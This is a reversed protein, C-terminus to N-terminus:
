FGLFIFSPCTCELRALHWFNLPFSVKQAKGKKQSYTLLAKALKAAATSPLNLREVVINARELASEMGSDNDELQRIKVLVPRGDNNKVKAKMFSAGRNDVISKYKEILSKAIAEEVLEKAGAAGTKSLKVAEISLKDLNAINEPHDLVLDCTEVLEDFKPIRHPVVLDLSVKESVHVSIKDMPSSPEEVISKKEVKKGTDESFDPVDFDAANIDVGAKGTAESLLSRPTHGRLDPTSGKAGSQKVLHDYLVEIGQKAVFHLATEGTEASRADGKAGAKVLRKILDIIPPNKPDGARGLTRCASMLPTFPGPRGCDVDAGADLLARVLKTAGKECALSLPSAGTVEWEALQPMEKSATGGELGGIGNVVVRFNRTDLKKAQGLVKAFTSESGIACAERLTNIFNVEKDEVIPSELAYKVALPAKNEIALSASTEQDGNPKNSDGGYRRMLLILAPSGYYRTGRLSACAVSVHMPTSLPGCLSLKGLTASHDKELKDYEDASIMERPRIVTRVCPHNPDAGADLLYKVVFRYRESVNKVGHHLRSNSGLLAGHLPTLGVTHDGVEVPAKYELLAQVCKPRGNFAAIYLLSQSKKSLADSPVQKDMLLSSLTLDDGSVCAEIANALCELAKQAQGAEEDERQRRVESAGGVMALLRQIRKVSTSEPQADHLRTLVPVDFFSDLRPRLDVNAESKDKVRARYLKRLAKTTVNRGALQMVRKLEYASKTTMIDKRSARMVDIVFLPFQMEWGCLFCQDWVFEAANRKLFGVLCTDIWPVLFSAIERFEGLDRYTLNMSRLENQQARAKDLLGVLFEHLEQDDRKLGEVCRRAVHLAGSRAPGNGPLIHLLRNFMSVLVPGRLPQRPFAVLLPVLLDIHSAHQTGYTVFYQNLILIAATRMDKSDYERLDANFSIPVTRCIMSYLASETADKLRQIAVNRRMVNYTTEVDDADFLRWKFVFRRLSVPICRGILARLLTRSNHDMKKSWTGPDLVLEAGDDYELLDAPHTRASKSNSAKSNELPSDEGYVQVHHEIGESGIEFGNGLLLAILGQGLLEGRGEETAHKVADAVGTAVRERDAETADKMDMSGFTDRAAKISAAKAMLTVEMGLQKDYSQTVAREYAGYSPDEKFKIKDLHRSVVTLLEKKFEKLLAERVDGMMYPEELVHPERKMSPYNARVFDPGLLKFVVERSVQKKVKQDAFTKIIESLCTKLQDWHPGLTLTRKHSTSVWSTSAHWLQVEEGFNEEKTEDGKEGLVGTNKLDAVARYGSGRVVDLPDATVDM